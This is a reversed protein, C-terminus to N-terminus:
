KHTVSAGPGVSRRIFQVFETLLPKYGCAPANLVLELGDGRAGSVPVWRASEDTLIRNHRGQVEVPM